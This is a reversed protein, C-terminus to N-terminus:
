FIKNLTEIFYRGTSFTDNIKSDLDSFNFFDDCTLTVVAFVAVIVYFIYLFLLFKIINIKCTHYFIDMPIINARKKKWLFVDVTKLYDLREM